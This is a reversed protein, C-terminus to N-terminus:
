KNIQDIKKIYNEFLVSYVMVEAIIIINRKYLSFAVQINSSMIMIFAYKINDCM